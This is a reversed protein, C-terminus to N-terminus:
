RSRRINDQRGEIIELMRPDGKATDVQMTFQEALALQHARNLDERRDDKRTEWIKYLGALLLMIIIAGAAIGVLAAITGETEQWWPHWVKNPNHWQYTCDWGVPCRPAPPQAM